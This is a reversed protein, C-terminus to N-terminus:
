QAGAADRMRRLAQTELQRVREASIGLDTGIERLTRAPRGLGYHDEIIAREREPLMESLVRVHDMEIRQLVQEYESEAKPDALLDGWTGSDGGELGVPEEIGRPTRDITVLSDVQDRPLGTAEMLDATTPERRHAQLFDRRARKLTAMGRLARDSLAAPRAAHAVLHQMAQRVWWLAYAWFPTGLSPDFRRLARLLGVVGEQLLEPREVAAGQYHRAISAIAPLFTEVLKECAVPDGAAAAMVLRREAEPSLRTRNGPGTTEALDRGPVTVVIQHHRDIRIRVLTEESDSCDVVVEFDDNASPGVGQAGSDGAVDLCAGTARAVADLVAYVADGDVIAEVHGEDPAAIAVGVFGGNGTSAPQVTGASWSLLDGHAVVHEAFPLIAVTPAGGSLRYRYAFGPGDV